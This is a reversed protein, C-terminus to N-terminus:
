WGWAQRYADVLSANVDDDDPLGSPRDKQLAGELRHVDLVVPLEEERHEFDEGLPPVRSVRLPYHEVRSREGCASATPPPIGLPWPFRLRCYDVQQVIQGNSPKSSVAGGRHTQASM